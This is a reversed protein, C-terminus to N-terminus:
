AAAPRRIVDTDPFGDDEEAWHNTTVQITTQDLTTNVQSLNM